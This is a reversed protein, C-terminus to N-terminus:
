PVPKYEVKYFMKDLGLMSKPQYIWSGTGVQWDSTLAWNELDTNKWLMYQHSPVSNWLVVANGTNDKRIMTLVNFQSVPDFGKVYEGINILGDTDPDDDSEANTDGFNDIEWSDAMGDIDTDGPHEYCGMDVTIGQIRPNGEIDFLETVVSSDGADICPSRMFTLPNFEPIESPTITYRLYYYPSAYLNVLM